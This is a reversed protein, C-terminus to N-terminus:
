DLEKRMDLARFHSFYWTSTSGTPCIVPGFCCVMFLFSGFRRGCSQKQIVYGKREYLSIARNGDIVSLAMFTCGQSRATEESWAMLKSGCGMRRTEPDVALSDVYAEGPKVKHLDCPMGHLILQIYGVVKGDLIAVGTMNMMEPHKKFKKRIASESESEDWGLPVCCCMFKSNLFTTRLRAFEAVHKDQLSEITISNDTM